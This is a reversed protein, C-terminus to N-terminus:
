QAVLRLATRAEPTEALAQKSLLERYTALAEDPKGLKELCEASRLYARAAWEPYGEYLVYVRQFFAFAEKLRNQQMYCLGINYLSEPWFQRWQRVALVTTYSEIAREFENLARLIDGERKKAWGAESAAPWRRLIERATALARELEGDAILRDTMWRHADLAFDSTGHHQLFHEYIARALETQGTADAERGMLDLTFPGALPINAERLIAAALGRRRDADQETEAFLAVLRLELTREKNARASELAVSLRDLLLRHQEPPILRHRDLVLDRLIMDIGYRTTVNGYRTIADFFIDFAKKPQGMRLHATGLWYSAESFNGQEGHTKLYDEFLAVIEAFRAELELIRAAQFTAYNIQYMNTAVARSQAFMELAEDLKRRAGLIDGMMSYAEALVLSEPYRRVFRQFTEYAADYDDTGYQALGLRYTADEIYASQPYRVVFRDFQIEAEPYRALFLLSLSLWYHADEMFPSDPYQEMISVFNELADEVQELQFNSNGALLMMYDAAAHDPKDRLAQTAVALGEKWQARRMHVQTVELTVWDWYNGQPLLRIYDYGEQLAREDNKMDRATMFASYLGLDGLEHEPFREYLNRYLYLAEWHRVLKHYSRAQRIILDQDYDPLDELTKLQDELAPILRELHRRQAAVELLNLGGREVLQAHERKTSDLADQLRRQLESKFFVLRYLVLAHQYREANFNSDGAEILAINLRADYKAWTRYALPVFEFLREFQEDRVLATAIMAAADTRARYDPSRRFVVLLPEVSESWRELRVLADGLLRNVAVFLNPAWGTEELGARLANVVDEWQGDTAYTEALLLIAMKRFMGMPYSNLYSRFEQQAQGTRETEMYSVALYYRARERVSQVLPETNGQLKLILMELYPIAAHYDGSAILADAQRALDRPRMFELSTAQQGRALGPCFLVSFFVAAVVTCAM